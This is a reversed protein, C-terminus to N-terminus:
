KRSTMGYHGGTVIWIRRSGEEWTDVPVLTNKSYRMWNHADFLVGVCYNVEFIVSLNIASDVEM